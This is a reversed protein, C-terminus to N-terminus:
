LATNDEDPSIDSMLSPYKALEERNEQDFQPVGNGDLQYFVSDIEAVIRTARLSPDMREENLDPIGSSAGGIAALIDEVEHELQERLDCMKIIRAEINNRKNRIEKNVWRRGWAVAIGVRADMLQKRGGVRAATYKKLALFGGSYVGGGRSLTASQPAVVGGYPQTQIEAGTQPDVVTSDPSLFLSIDFPNGGLAVYAQLLRELSSGKSVAFGRREETVKVNGQDDVERAYSVIVRGIRDLEAQIVEIRKSADRREELM